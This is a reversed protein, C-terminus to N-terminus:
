RASQYGGLMGKKSFVLQWLHTRRSRFGGAVSLLYYKWMRYFREGYKSQLEPWAADFNKFWEQLTLDYDAGFNHWDELMFLGDIAAGMQAVSPLVGNPFIYKHFWPDSTWTTRDSGITHLLFLGDEKLLSSVKQMYARYNKPGVHEFMGISIIHDFTGQLTRYDEIRIDVDLGTCTERALAAQEKSVTVGVGKAGYREAAFKLFSGWGCGIDLVTQGPKLGIKRCVLDLKQEQANDLNQAPTAPSSWYGCSYALRKDLMREYLDNGIDYHQEGVQYARKTNQMNTFRARLVYGLAGLFSIRSDLHARLVHAFFGTLDEADWWGDMYAEGLGVSGHAFVRDYLREDHVQIDWPREGHITVDAMALLEQAKQQSTM